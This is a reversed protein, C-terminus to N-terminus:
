KVRLLSKENKQPRGRFWAIFDQKPYLVQRGRRIFNPHDYGRCRNTRLTVITIKLADCVDEETYYESLLEKITM